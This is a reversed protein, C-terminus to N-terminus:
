VLYGTSCIASMNTFNHMATDINSNCKAQLLIKHLFHFFQFFFSFFRRCGAVVQSLRTQSLEPTKNNNNEKFAYYLRAQRAFSPPLCRCYDINQSNTPDLLLLVKLSPTIQSVLKYNETNRPDHSTPRDWLM